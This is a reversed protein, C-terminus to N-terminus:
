VCLNRKWFLKRCHAWHLCRRLWPHIIRSMSPWHGASNPKWRGWCVLSSIDV